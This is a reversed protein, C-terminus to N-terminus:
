QRGLIIAAIIMTACTITGIIYVTNQQIIFEQNDSIRTDRLSPIDKNNYYLLNGSFDYFDDKTTEIQVQKGRRNIIYNQLDRTNASVNELSNEYDITNLNINTAIANLENQSLGEILTYKSNGSFGEINSFSEVGNPNYTAMTRLEPKLMQRSSSDKYIIQSYIFNAVNNSVKANYKYDSPLSGVNMFGPKYEDGKIVARYALNSLYKYNNDDVMPQWRFFGWDEYVEIQGGRSSKPRDPWVTRFYRNAGNDGGSKGRSAWWDM